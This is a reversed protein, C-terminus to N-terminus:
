TETSVIIFSANECLSFTYLYPLWCFHWFYKTILTHGNIMFKLVSNVVTTLNSTYTWFHHPRLMSRYWSTTSIYETETSVIIFSANESLSFTYLYPLWCCHWFYEKDIHSTFTDKFLPLVLIVSSRVIKCPSLWFEYNYLCVIDTLLRFVIFVAIVRVQYLCTLEFVFWPTHFLPFM